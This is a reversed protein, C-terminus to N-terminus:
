NKKAKKLTEIEQYVSDIPRKALHKKVPDGEVTVGLVGDKGVEARGQFGGLKVYLGTNDRTKRLFLLHQSGKTFLPDDYFAETIEGNMYGGTQLVQITDGVNFGTGNGVKDIRIVQKTFILDVRKEPISDVVSGLVILESRNILDAMTDYHENWSASATAPVKIQETTLKGIINLASVAVILSVLLVRFVLKRNM